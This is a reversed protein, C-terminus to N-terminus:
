TSGCNMQRTQIVLYAHLYLSSPSLTSSPLGSLSVPPQLSKKILFTSVCVCVYVYVCVCVCVCVIHIYSDIHTYEYMICMCQYIYVFMGVYMYEYTRVHM